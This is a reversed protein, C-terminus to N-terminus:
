PSQRYIALKDSVARSSLDDLRRCVDLWVDEALVCYQILFRIANIENLLILLPIAGRFSMSAHLEPMYAKIFAHWLSAAAENRTDIELWWGITALDFWQPGCGCDDFDFLTVRSGDLRMNALRFDGHCFGIPIDAAKWKKSMLQECRGRVAAAFSYASPVDDRLRELTRFAEDFDAIQRDPSLEKLQPQAHLRRLAKGAASLDNRTLEMRRGTAEAFLAARRALGDTLAVRFSRTGQLTPLPLSVALVEDQEVQSLLRLEGEVDDESRGHVRYLRLYYSSRVRDTLRFTRNVGHVVEQVKVVALGYAAAVTQRVLTLDPHTATKNNPIM